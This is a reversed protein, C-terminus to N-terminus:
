SNYIIMNKLNRFISNLNKPEFHNKEVMRIKRIYMKLVKNMYRAVVLYYQQLSLRLVSM